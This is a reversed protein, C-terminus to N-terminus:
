PIRVARVADQAFVDQVYPGVQVWAGDQWKELTWDGELEPLSYRVGEPVYAGKYAAGASVRTGARQARPDDDDWVLETATAVMTRQGDRYLMWGQYRSPARQHGPGDAILGDSCVADVDQGNWHEWCAVPGWLSLGTASHTDSPYRRREGTRLDQVVVFHAEIWAVWQESAAVHVQDGPARALVQASRGNQSLLLVDLGTWASDRRDVWLVASESVAPAYWSAPAAPLERRHGADWPMLVVADRTLVAVQEPGVGVPAIANLRAAKGPHWTWDQSRWGGRSLGYVGQASAGPSEMPPDLPREPGGQIPLVRAVKGGECALIWAGSLRPFRPDFCANDAGPVPRKGIPLPILDSRNRAPQVDVVVEAGDVRIVAKGLMTLTVWAQTGDAQDVGEWSLAAPWPGAYALDIQITQGLAPDLREAHVLSATELPLAVAVVQAKPLGAGGDPGCGM